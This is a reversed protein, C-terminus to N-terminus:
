FGSGPKALYASEEDTSARDLVANRHPFRGFRRIVDRHDEAYRNFEENGLTAILTVAKDQDSLPESHEYPLYLFIRQQTGLLQDYGLEVAREAVALATADSAFARSSGCFMNRPFQDLVLVAALATRADHTLAEVSMACVDRHVDGFRDTIAADTAADKKFWQPPTLESFWFDLVADTWGHLDRVEEM